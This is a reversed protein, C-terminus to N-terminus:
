GAAGYQILKLEFLSGAATRCEGVFDDKSMGNGYVHYLGGAIAVIDATGDCMDLFDKGFDNIETIEIEDNEHRFALCVSEPSYNSQFIGNKLDEIIGPLDNRFEAIKVNKGLAPKVKDPSSLDINVTDNKQSFKGAELSVSEYKLIEPLHEWGTIGNQQIIYDAFVAFYRYCDVSTLNLIEYGRQKMLWDLWFLFLSSISKKLAMGVLLFSKPYLKIIVPFYTAILNLDQLAMGNCPLNYFSSFILPWSNILKEDSQLRQGNVFELGMAFYTDVQRVLKNKYREFLDTGPLVTPMQLLPNSNGQIGTRLALTLTADIDSVEEEPFGIVFSLTPVIGQDTTEIVRKYLIDEDIHKRIFSLTKKSGSDIGYCMSECGAECMLRLLSENVTDLRSICYWPLHNLGEEILMLCFDKVFQRDATFQDYALLFCEAGHNEHLHRMEGVLRFVSFTRVRRQWMVSESCYICQHPCGRGVELIAISRQLECADRYKELSGVFRYDAFPLNDLNDILPRDKNRIIEGNCRYTVGFVDTEDRDNEYAEVLRKFTIEGEGRVVADIWPFFILTDVDVFSANHGGIIIKIEPNGKKVRKAIRIVAPYTTCQASFCVMDPTNELIKEASDDYISEGMLIEGTRLALVFDKISVNHASNDISTALNILGLPPLNYISELYFPPFVLTINM